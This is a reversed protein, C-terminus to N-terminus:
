QEIGIIKFLFKDTLKTLSETQGKIFVCNDKKTIESNKDESIIIFNDDCTKVPWNEDCEKKEMESPCAPQIRQAFYNLNRYIEAGAETNNSYIYVPKGSYSNLNINPANLSIEKIQEPNYRFSFQSNGINAFWFGNQEEFEIGNYKIKKNASSNNEGVFSFGLISALMVTVLIVGVITQNRKQKNEKLEKSTIKRM